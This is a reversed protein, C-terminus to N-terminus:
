KTLTASDHNPDSSHLPRDRPRRTGLLQPVPHPQVVDRIIRAAAWDAAGGELFLRLPSPSTSLPSTALAATTTHMSTQQKM